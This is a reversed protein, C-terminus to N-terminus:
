VSAQKRWKRLGGKDEETSRPGRRHEETSGLAGPDAAIVRRKVDLRQMVGGHLPRCLVDCARKGKWWLLNPKQKWQPTIRGVYTSHWPYALISSVLPWKQEPVQQGSSPTPNECHEKM